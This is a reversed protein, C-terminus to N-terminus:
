PIDDPIDDYGPAKNPNLDKIMNEITENNTPEFYISHAVRKGYFCQLAAKISSKGISKAMEQDINWFYQNLEFFISSLNTFSSDNVNPKSPLSSSNSEGKRLIKNLTKWTSSINKSKGIEKQFFMAKVTEKQHTLKNRFSTYTKLDADSRTKQYKAFLKNQKKISKM